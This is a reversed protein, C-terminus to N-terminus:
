VAKPAPAPSASPQLALRRHRAQVILSILLLVGLGIAVYREKGAASDLTAPSYTALLMGLGLSIMAVGICATGLITTFRPLALGMGLGTIWALVAVIVVKTVVDRRTQWFYSFADAVYAKLAWAAQGVVLTQSSSDESASPAEVQQPPDVIVQQQQYYEKLAAILDQSNRAGAVALVLLAACCAATMGVWWRFLLHGALGALGAGIVLGILLDVNEVTKAVAVGLAGGVVIFTLVYILRLLRSGWLALVIGLILLIAVLTPTSPWWSPPSVDVGVEAAWGALLDMIDKLGTM